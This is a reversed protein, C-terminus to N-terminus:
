REHEIAERTPTSPMVHVDHEIAHQMRLVRQQAASTALLETASLRPEGQGVARVLERADDTFVIAQTRARSVSVYFQERSSAAFSRASQGILVRDVTRGQSAHSTVVFGHTLHGYDRPIVRSRAGPGSVLVDGQPTFGDVRFVDGNSLPLDDRSRGNRTVRVQDGRALELSSPRYVTFREARDLPLADDGVVFRAGKRHGRANQHFVLVDGPQYSAPDRRQGVTLNAPVLTPVTISADDLLGRERLASRIAITIRQGEAHTPSVVLTSAGSQVSDAYATALAGDRQEDDIQRIWGLDDLRKMGSATRGEALDEVAAKYRKRQRQIHKIEATHLGARDELLRLAGGREVPGHQRRDGVLLVRAHQTGALDLVANMTRVGVLGAEDILILGNKVTDHLKTDALLAAVTTAGDFGESRLVGRSAASSPAFAHVTVGAAKAQERLEQMASTKGAGAAGRVVMVRDRSGLVHTIAARQQDNLWSRALTVEHPAIPACAGRGRRAVDLMRQEEALVERTTVLDVGHRRAHLLDQAGVLAEITGRDANGAGQRLAEALLTRKPLVSAREFVHEIARAVSERAASGDIAIACGDIRGALEDIRQQETRTLGSRWATALEPMSWAGSKPARTRAGLEAKRKPDTVGRRAAVREIQATRRSFKELTRADLGAIEWGSRTRTTRLGLEGIRRALRAHFVAEFYPADRKVDGLQLAKWRQEHHDFTANFVFCHTHLHPDPLGDVPRATLHTFEGWVLNGTVRDENYGMARVRAKAEDEIECMTARVAGEFAELLREDRTLGYLLSLSKPAHFNLDYGVRRQPKRRITLTAGDDPRRNECVRDWARRTIAGELGLLAAGRGRWRGPLEQGLATAQERAYYDPTAYYSKARATSNSQVMRLM